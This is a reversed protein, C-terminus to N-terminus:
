DPFSWKPKFRINLGGFQLACLYVLPIWTNMYEGWCAFLDFLAIPNTTGYM